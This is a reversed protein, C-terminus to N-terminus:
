QKDTTRELDRTFQIYVDEKSANKLSYNIDAKVELFDLTKLHIVDEACKVEVEGQLM